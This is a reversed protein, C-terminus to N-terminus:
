QGLHKTAPTNCKYPLTRLCALMHARLRLGPTQPSHGGPESCAPIRGQQADFSFWWHTNDQRGNRVRHPCAEDVLAQPAHMGALSHGQRVARFHSATTGTHRARSMATPAHHSSHLISHCFLATIEVGAGGSATIQCPYDTPCLDLTHECCTAPRSLLKIDVAMCSTVCQSAPDPDDHDPGYASMMDTCTHCYPMKMCVSSARRRQTPSPAM